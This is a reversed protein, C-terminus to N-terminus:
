AKTKFANIHTRQVTNYDEPVSAQMCISLLLLLLFLVLLLLFYCYYYYYFHYLLGSDNM